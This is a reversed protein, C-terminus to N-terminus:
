RGGFATASAVPEADRTETVSLRAKGTLQSAVSDSRVTSGPVFYIAAFVLFAVAIVLVSQEQLWTAVLAYPIAMLAMALLLRVLYRYKANM